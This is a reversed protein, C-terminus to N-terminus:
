LGLHQLQFQASVVAGVGYRPRGACQVRDAHGDRRQRDHVGPRQRLHLRPQQGVAAHLLGGAHGPLEFRHGGGSGTIPMIATIYDTYGGTSVGGKNNWKSSSSGGVNWQTLGTGSVSKGNGPIMRIDSSVLRLLAPGLNRSERNAEAVYGFVPTPSSDGQGSFMVSAVSGVADNPDNYFYSELNTYGMAWSAFEQLRVYSESPLTATYTTRFLNPFQGYPIPQWNVAGTPGKLALTRFGTMYTYWNQRDANPFSFSPYWYFALMDPQTATMYTSITSTSEQAGGWSSYAMVNPYDTHWFTYATAVTNYTTPNWTATELSIELGTLTSLYRAEVVNLGETAYPLGIWCGWQQKAPKAYLLDTAVDGAFNITTFNASAWTTWNSFGPSIYDYADAQLQLGQSLQLLRGRSQADAPDLAVYFINLVCM